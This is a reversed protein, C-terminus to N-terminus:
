KPLGYRMVADNGPLFPEGQFNVANAFRSSCTALTRDCGERAIARTGAAVSLDVPADLVVEGGLASAIGMMMGAYPGSVYNAFEIVRIGALAGSM